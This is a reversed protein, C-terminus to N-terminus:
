EVVNFSGTYMGMSCTYTLNGLKTPTFEIIESGTAPLVKSINYDPITFARSCGAVQNTILTLRVPVGAKLTKVDTTYGRSTVTITAEQIGDVISATDGTEATEEFAVRWYNQITHVSGRLVQGSNIAIIGLTAVVLAAIISFARKRFLESAAMGIAFFVPSTGLIFFFLILASNVPNGASIALLMM